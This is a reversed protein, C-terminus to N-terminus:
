QHGEDEPNIKTKEHKCTLPIACKRTSRAHFHVSLYPFSLKPFIAAITLQCCTLM